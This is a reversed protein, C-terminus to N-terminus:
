IHRFHCHKTTKNYLFGEFAIASYCTEM